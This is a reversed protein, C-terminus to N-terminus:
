CKCFVWWKLKWYRFKAPLSRQKAELFCERITEHSFFNTGKLVSADVSFKLTGQVPAVWRLEHLNANSRRNRNPQIKHKQAEWLNKVQKLSWAM